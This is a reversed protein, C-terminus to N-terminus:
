IDILDTTNIKLMLSKSYFNLIINASKFNIFILAIIATVHANKWSSPYKYQRLSKNFIIQLPIAIKEPSIKIMKHSIKDPESAKNPNIIKIIDVIESITVFAENIVNNTKIDFDPLPVNEEELKSILSFYKNLLDCKDEDGIRYIIFVEVINNDDFNEDDISNKFPPICNSGKKSKILMKMIKWYTKPNSANELLIYDLNNEFNEKAIKKM